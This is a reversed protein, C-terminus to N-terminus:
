NYCCVLLVCHTTDYAFYILKGDFNNFSQTTENYITFYNYHSTITNTYADVVNAYANQSTSWNTDTEIKDVFLAAEQEDLKIMAFSEYSDSFENTYSVYTATPLDFNVRQQLSNVYDTDHGVTISMCGYICILIAVIVGAVINKTCKYKKPKYVVGLIASAVPIPLFVLLVWLNEFFAYPFTPIPSTEVVAGATAIGLPLAAISAIFM